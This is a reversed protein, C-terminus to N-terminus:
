AQDESKLFARSWGISRHTATELTLPFQWVSVFSSDGEPYHIVIGLIKSPQDEDEERNVDHVVGARNLLSNMALRMQVADQRAVLEGDAGKLEGRM